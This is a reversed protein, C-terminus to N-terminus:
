VIVYSQKQPIVKSRGHVKISIFAERKTDYLVNAYINSPCGFVRGQEFAINVLIENESSFEKKEQISPLIINKVIFCAMAGCASGTAPEEPIGELPAFNRVGIVTANVRNSSNADNDYTLGDIPFLHYGVMQYMSSVESIMKCIDDSLKVNDLLESTKISVIADKGGTNVIEINEFACIPLNLSRAVKEKLMQPDNVEHFIPLSQEMKVFNDCCKISMITLIPDSSDKPLITTRMKYTTNNSILKRDLLCGFSAVTAHGCFGNASVPTAFRVDIDFSSNRTSQIQLFATEPYGVQKAIKIMTEDKLPFENKEDIIIVGAPNGYEGQENVFAHVHHLIYQREGFHILTSTDSEDEM